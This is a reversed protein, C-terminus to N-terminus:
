PLQLTGVPTDIVASICPVSGTQVELSIGIAALLTTVAEAKPHELHLELLRCGVPASAAPHPSDGWDILMPFIGDYVMVMPDTLQWRLSRGDPLTRAGPQISGLQVGASETAQQAADLNDCKAFWGIMQPSGLTSFIAPRNEAPADSDPDPAILE